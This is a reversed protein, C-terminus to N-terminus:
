NQPYPLLGKRQYHDIAIHVITESTDFHEALEWLSTTTKLTEFLEDFPILMEAAYRQARKESKRANSIFNPNSYDTLFYLLKHQLHALEEALIEKEEQRSEIKNYDMAIIQITGDDICFAKKNHTSFQFVDINDQEAVQYLTQLDM